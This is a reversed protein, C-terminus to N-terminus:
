RVVKLKSERMIMGIAKALNKANQRKDINIYAMFQKETSHGTLQMLQIAPIGMEYFNTAFSRRATHTTVLEWKEKKVEKKQGGVSKRKIIEEKIGALNCLEKLYDNMKQNSIAKPSHYGYKELITKLEEMLPIVVQTDTKQTWIEIMEVGEERIIHEPKLRTFDSFRLGSYAGILFLDRVRDLKPNDSLDLDYLIELESFSLIINQVKEKSISWGRQIFTMNTNYGRRTAEHLFQRLVEFIKSVYNTSHERPKLYLWNEFDHRFEFTFDEYNLDKKKAKGYEKLHTFVTKYIKWTGRKANVKGSREEIFQDVFDTFVPIGEEDPVVKGTKINLQKKFTDIDLQGFNYEEFIDKIHEELENLRSNLVSYESHKKTYKARQKEKDWYPSLVKEGTSYKLRKGNYHFYAYILTEKTKDAKDKLNFRVAPIKPQRPMLPNNQPNDTCGM